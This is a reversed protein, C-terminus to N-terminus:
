KYLFFCVCVCQYVLPWTMTQEASSVTKGTFGLGENTTDGIITPVKVFHNNQFENYTYDKVFDKDLTPNWFFIPPNQAGPYPKKLDRAAKQFTVADLNILCNFDPCGSQKLLADYQWQSENVDRIPPTAPSEAIAGQFLKDDRGGFATLQFIVSGAGASAGGL